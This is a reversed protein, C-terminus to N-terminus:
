SIVKFKVTNSTVIDKTFGKGNPILINRKVSIYYTTGSKFRYIEDIRMEAHLEQQPGVQKSVKRYEDASRLRQKGYETLPVTNGKSDKITIKYDQEPSSEFLFFPKQTNNKLTLKLQIEDGSKVTEALTAILQYSNQSRDSNEGNRAEAVLILATCLAAIAAITFTLKM